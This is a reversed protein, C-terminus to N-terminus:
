GGLHEEVQRWALEASERAREGSERAHRSAATGELVRKMIGQRISAIRFLNYAMCFEWVVPEIGVRGTRRCYSALYQAETPIGLAAHDIDRLGRIEGSTVRWLMVHYSFDALPHGLTSLEWDILAQVRPADAAFIMNDLRYDGHVLATEDGPPINAPLWAILREMAEIRETESSRYQRSWRAIQRAFYNGPKGYDALGAAAYDLTHLAVIVRNMEDYIAARQPASMGPLTPDWFARGAAYEMLYFMTGIVSADSCLCLPRAVPVASGHLASIVRFERDIAHASPLLAGSPQKRLVLRAGDGGSLLFTPNSQGGRFQEVTLPPVFAPVHLRLYRELAAEDFRQGAPVPMTGAFEEGSM